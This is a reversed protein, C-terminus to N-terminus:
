LPLKWLGMVRHADPNGDHGIAILPPPFSFPPAQLNIRRVSRFGKGPVFPQSENNLNGPFYTTLLYKAGSQDLKKLVAQARDVDFHILVDRVIVLDAPWLMQQSFDFTMFDIRGPEGYHCNLAQVLPNVIDLGVYQVDRRRFISDHPKIITRMYHFDGVPVDVISRIDLSEILFPLVARIGQTQAFSSGPGSWSRGRHRKGPIKGFDPWRSSINEYYMAYKAEDYREDATSTAMLLKNDVSCTRGGFSWGERIAKTCLCQGSALCQGGNQCTNRECKARQDTTSRSAYSMGAQALTQCGGGESPLMAMLTKCGGDAQLFPLCCSDNTSLDHRYQTALRSGLTLSDIAEKCRLPPWALSASQPWSTNEPCKANDGGGDAQARRERNTILQSYFQSSMLLNQGFSIFILFIVCTVALIAVPTQSCQLQSARLLLTSILKARGATEPKPAQSQPTATGLRCPRENM